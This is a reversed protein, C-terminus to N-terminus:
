SFRYTIGKLSMKQWVLDMNSSSLDGQLWGLLSARGTFFLGYTYERIGFAQDLKIADINNNLKEIVTFVEDYDTGAGRMARDLRDAMIKYDQNSYSQQEGAATYGAIAGATTSSEKITLLFAELFSFVRIIVFVALVAVIIQQIPPLKQFWNILKKM